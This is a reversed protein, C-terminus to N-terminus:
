CLWAAASKGAGSGAAVAGKVAPLAAGNDGRYDLRGHGRGVEHSRAGVGAGLGVVRERVRAARDAIRRVEVHLANGAARHALRRPEALGDLGTDACLQQRHDMALVQQQHVHRRAAQLVDCLRELEGAIRGVRREDDRGQVGPRAQVEPTAVVEDGVASQRARRARKQCGAHHSAQQAVQQQRQSLKMAGAEDMAVDVGAVDTHRELAPTLPDARVEILQTQDVKAM